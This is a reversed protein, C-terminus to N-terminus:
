GRYGYDSPDLGERTFTAVAGSVMVSDFCDTNALIVADAALVSRRIEEGSMKDPDGELLVSLADHADGCWM